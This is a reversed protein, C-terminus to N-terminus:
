GRNVVSLVVDGRASSKGNELSETAATTIAILQCFWRIREAFPGADPASGRKKVVSKRPERWLQWPTQESTSWIEDALLERSNPHM